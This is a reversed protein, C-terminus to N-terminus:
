YHWHTRWAPMRGPLVNGGTKSKQQLLSSSDFFIFNTITKNEFCLLLVVTSHFRNGHLSDREM